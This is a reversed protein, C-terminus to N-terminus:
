SRGAAGERDAYWGCCHQQQKRFTRVRQMFTSYQQSSSIMECWTLCLGPACCCSAVFSCATISRVELRRLMGPFKQVSERPLRFVLEDACQLLVSADPVEELVAAVVGAGRQQQTGSARAGRRRTPSTSTGPQPSTNDTRTAGCFSVGKELETATAAAAVIRQPRDRSQEILTQSNDRMYVPHSPTHQLVQTPEHTPLSPMSSSQDSINHSPVLADAPGGQGSGVFVSRSDDMRTIGGNTAEGATDVPTGESVAGGVAVLQPSAVVLGRLPSTANSDFSATGDRSERVEEPTPELRRPSPSPRSAAGYAASPALQDTLGDPHDLDASGHTHM